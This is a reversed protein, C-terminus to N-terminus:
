NLSPNNLSSSLKPLNNTNVVSPSYQASVELDFAYMQGNLLIDVGIRKAYTINTDTNNSIGNINGLADTMRYQFLIPILLANDAKVAKFSDIENSQVHLISENVANFALYAGTTKSGILYKDNTNFLLKPKTAYYAVQEISNTLYLNSSLSMLISKLESDNTGYMPHSASVAVGDFTSGAAIAIAELSNTSNNLHVVNKTAAGVDQLAEPVTIPLPTSLLPNDAYLDYNNIVNRNRLYAIQGKTQLYGKPLARTDSQVYGVSARNYKANTIETNVDGPEISYIEMNKSNAVKLYMQYNVIDGLANSTAFDTYFGAFVKITSNNAIPYENGLADVISLTMTNSNNIIVDELKQIKTVIESLKTFLPVRNLEPTTFGSDIETAIHAFYAHQEEVSNKIHKLLGANEILENLEIKQKEDKVQQELKAFDIANNFEKPFSVRITDSWDSEIAVNPWGVESIAKIRIDVQENSTIPIDLQNINIKEADSINNDDFAVSGDANIVRRRIATTLENWVSFSGTTEITEGDVNSAVTYNDAKAIQNNASVYRYQIKYAIINQNRTYESELYEQIPWFGRVRFKPSYTSAYLGIDKSALENIVSAYQTYLSKNSALEKNLSSMLEKREAENKYNSSDLASKINNIATNSNKLEAALKNQNAYLTTIYEVEAGEVIHKNIQVVNLMSKDLAPKAPKIAYQLPIANQSVLSTLYDSISGGNSNRIYDDVSMSTDNINITFEKSSYAIANSMDSVTGHLIHTSEIFYVGNDNFRIPVNISRKVNEDVYIATSVGPVIDTYGYKRYVTVTNTSANVSKVVYLSNYELIALSDGFVLEKSNAKINQNDSYNITDLVLEFDGNQLKTSKLISFDGKYRSKYYAVPLTFHEISHPVNQETLYSVVDNYAAKSELTTKHEQYDSYNTLIVKTLNVHRSHSKTVNTIDVNMVVNPMYLSKMLENDVTITNLTALSMNSNIFPKKNHSLEFLERIKGDATNLLTAYSAGDQLFTLQELNQKFNSLQHLIYNFSPITLQRTGNADNVEITVYNEKSILAQQIAATNTLGVNYLNHVEALFASINNSQQTTQTSM